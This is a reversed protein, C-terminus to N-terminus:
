NTPNEKITKKLVYHYISSNNLTITYAQVFEWGKSGMYNLGDIMSNFLKSASGLVPTSALQLFLRCGQWFM